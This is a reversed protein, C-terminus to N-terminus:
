PLEVRQIIPAGNPALANWYISTYDTALVGDFLNYANQAITGM